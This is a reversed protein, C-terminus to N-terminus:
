EEVKFTITVSYPVGNKLAQATVFYDRGVLFADNSGVLTFSTGSGTVNTNLVQWQINTYQSVDELTLSATANRKLTLVGGSIVANSSTMKGGTGITIQLAGQNPPVVTLTVTASGYKTDDVTSTARVTLTSLPEDASVTLEGDANINTQAHKNTQVISWTVTHEPHNTGTVVAEFTYSGGKPVSVTSPEVTVSTITPISEEDPYITVTAQGSKSTDATSTAKVTLAQLSESLSVTLLGTGSITTGSHKNTEVISWAVTQAPNNTGTVVANFQVTGGLYAPPTAPSVTVDTVTSTDDDIGSSGSGSSVSCGILGLGIVAALAIIALLRRALLNRKTNKM